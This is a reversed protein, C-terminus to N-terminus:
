RKFMNKLLYLLQHVFGIIRGFFGNHVRHCLMCEDEGGPLPKEENLDIRVQMDPASDNLFEVTIGSEWRGLRQDAMGGTGYLPLNIVADALKLTDIAYTRDYFPNYTFVNGAGTFVTDGKRDAEPFLPMVAPRHFANNVMNYENYQDFVADDIHWLIVGGILSAGEYSTAMGADWKTLQRNELLYYEQNKQTPIMVVTYADNETYSQGVVDYDGTSKAVVPDIWGLKYRCWPDMSFPVYSGTEPDDGWASCMVSITDINYEGWHGSNNYETDYLDPLGLYHGLEHALTSIPQPMGPELEEAVAIYEGVTVGGPTPPDLEFEYDNILDMISYAHSWLVKDFGVTTYDELYSGEYGAVVFAIALETNEISGNGDTDYAAFDLYEGAQEIAAKFINVLQLYQEKDKNPNSQAYNTAWDEHRADLAIHIVGDNARDARNTNGGVNFASTESAPLFTFQGFSMDSYYSTISKDDSFFTENWDYDGNYGINSFGIVIAVMPIDKKVHGLVPVFAKNGRPAKGNSIDNLTVLAGPHSRCAAEQGERGSGPAAPVALASVALLAACLAICVCLLLLKLSKKM